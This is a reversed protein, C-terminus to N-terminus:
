NPINYSFDSGNLGTSKSKGQAWGQAVSVVGSPKPCFNSSIDSMPIYKSAAIPQVYGLLGHWSPNQRSLRAHAGRSDTGNARPAIM